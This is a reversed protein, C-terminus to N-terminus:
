KRLIKVLINILISLIISIILSSTLPVVCSFNNRSILIDGPLRGLPLDIRSFLYFGLAALLFLAGLVALIRAIQSYDM